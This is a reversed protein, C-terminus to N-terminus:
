AAGGSLDVRARLPWDADSLVIQCGVRTSVNVVFPGLLNLYVCGNDQDLTVSCFMTVDEAQDIGIEALQEDPLDPAYDPFFTWPQTVILSVSDDLSRLLEFASDETPDPALSELVFERTEPLGPIGAPFHLIPQQDSTTIMPHIGNDRTSLPFPVIADVCTSSFRRSSRM